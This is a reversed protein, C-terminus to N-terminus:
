FCIDAENKSEESHLIRSILKRLLDHWDEGYVTRRPEYLVM